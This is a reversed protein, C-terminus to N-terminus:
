GFVGGNGGEDDDDDHDPKLQRLKARLRASERQMQASTMQHPEVSADDDKSANFFGGVRFIATAMTARAPAPAKSDGLVEIAAAYAKRAGVTKVEHMLWDRAEEATEDIEFENDNDDHDTM